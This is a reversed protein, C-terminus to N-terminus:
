HKCPRRVLSQSCPELLMELKLKQTLFEAHTRFDIDSSKLVHARSKVPLRRIYTQIYAIDGFTCVYVGVQMHYTQPHTLGLAWKNGQVIHNKFCGAFLVTTLQKALISTHRWVFICVHMWAPMHHPKPHTSGLTRKWGQVLHKASYTASCNNYTTLCTHIDGVICAYMCVYPPTQPADLGLSLRATTCAPKQFIKASVFLNYTTFCTRIYM